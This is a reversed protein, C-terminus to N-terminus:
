NNIEENVVEPESKVITLEEILNTAGAFKDIVFLVYRADVNITRQLRPEFNIDGSMAEWNGDFALGILEGKGNMIPSGSNGGTIDNTSLFCVVLEGNEDAYQGFDRAEILDLLRQPVDFEYDGPVYKEVIGNATCIYDYSIADAPQYDQVSGYSMRLSSNADPYLDKEPQTAAYFERLGKVFLHNNESITQMAANYATRNDNIQKIMMECVVYALDKEAAKMNPKEIFAKISEPTAFISNELIDNALAVVDGKYKKEVLNYFEPNVEADFTNYCLKLMEIFTKDELPKYTEAFMADVNIAKYTEEIQALKAKDVAMQEETKKEGKEDKKSNANKYAKIYSSFMAANAVPGTIGAYNPYYIVPTIASVLEYNEALTNLVNGYKEVRSPDANVWQTFMTELDAKTEAVKNKRLMLMQGEFNKWTNALGAKDDAYMINVSADKQMFEDMIDTQLKFIEHITPYFSEVNYDIGYSTIYRETSGPFGWIMTFDDQQIGDLSIPLHHKPTLPKNDPSYPAPNGEADAYVRFISFDGTHRPWMWNDTDGGFKGISSPPTGVLRVDTYVRYVFMYYENGEFFASIIPNYKGDESAAAELETSIAKIAANREEWTMGEKVVSLVQETVDEMRVLFSASIGEAPLEESFDKAWFGDTLYDHEVTSLKQIANYGCHHNTFMLSNQSVIEGTCFFGRPTAGESLGVIADKLSSNNISYLEEPTLQLGMKQMDVYNLREVFMPLWMGEDARVKGMLSFIALAVFLFTKKM